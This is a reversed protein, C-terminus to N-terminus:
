KSRSWDTERHRRGHDQVRNPHERDRPHEVAIKRVLRIPHGAAALKQEGQEAGRGDLPPREPPGVVMAMVVAMGILLGVRMGGVDM